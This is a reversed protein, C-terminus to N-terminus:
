IPNIQDTTNTSEPGAVEMMTMVSPMNDPYVNDVVFSRFTNFGKLPNSGDYFTVTVLPSRVQESPTLYADFNKQNVTINVTDSNKSMVTEWEGTWGIGLVVGYREGSLNFYPLNDLSSRGESCSYIQKRRLTKKVLAFDSSRCVSGRSHYVETRGLEFGSNIAYFGSINGSNKDSDNKVFVTWECTANQEYITAEVKVSLGTRDNTFTVFYTTGGRYLGEKEEIGMDYEEIIESFLTDGTLFDYAANDRGEKLLINKDFWDRCRKKESDSVTMKEATIGEFNIIQRYKMEEIRDKNVVAGGACTVAFYIVALLINIIRNKKVARMIFASLLIIGAMPFLIAFANEVVAYKNGNDSNIVANVTWFVGNVAGAGVVTGVIASLKWNLRCSMLLALFGGSIVSMMELYLLYTKGEPYFDFEYYLAYAAYCFLALFATILIPVAIEKPKNSKM